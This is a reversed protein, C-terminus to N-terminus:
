ETVQRQLLGKLHESYEQKRRLAQREDCEAEWLLRRTLEIERQLVPKADNRIYYREGGGGIPLYAKDEDAFVEFERRDGLRCELTDVMFTLHQRIDEAPRHYGNGSPDGWYTDHAIMVGDRNQVIRVIGHKCWGNGRPDANRWLQGPKFDM